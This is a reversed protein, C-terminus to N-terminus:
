NEAQSVETIVGAPGAAGGLKEFLKWIMQWNPHL